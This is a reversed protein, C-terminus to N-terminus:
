VDTATTFTLDFIAEPAMWKLPLKGGRKTVYVQDDYVYRALGFDGIKVCGLLATLSQGRLGLGRRIPHGRLGTTRPPVACPWREARLFPWSVLKLVYPKIDRNCNNNNSNISSEIHKNNVQVHLRM